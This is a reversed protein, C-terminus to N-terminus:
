KGGKRASKVDPAQIVRVSGGTSGGLDGSRKYWRKYGLDDPGGDPKTGKATVSKPTPM